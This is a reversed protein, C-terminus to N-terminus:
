QLVERLSDIVKHQERETISPFLPITLAEEYYKEAEPYQGYEFGQKKYYPQIHV